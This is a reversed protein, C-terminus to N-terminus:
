HRQKLPRDLQALLRPMTATSVQVGHDEAWRRCHAALPADPDAAVQARLAPWQAPPIAPPRGSRRRTAVTGRERTWQRWRRLSRAGIGFRVVIEAAPLGADMAGLLRERLDPADQLKMGM